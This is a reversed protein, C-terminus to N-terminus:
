RRRKMFYPGCGCSTEHTVVYTWEYNKGVVYIEQANEDSEIGAATFYKEPLAAPKEGDAWLFIYKAGEKDAIDFAARAADREFYSGDPILRWSFIHWVYGGRIYKEYNERPLSPAFAKLWQAFFPRNEYNKRDKAPSNQKNSCRRGM